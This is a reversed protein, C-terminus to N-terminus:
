LVGKSQLERYYKEEIEVNELLHETSEGISEIRASMPSSAVAEKAPQRKTALFPHELAEAVTIRKNPNFHLMRELLELGEPDAGKYIESLKKQPIAGMSEIQSVTYSDLHGMDDASPTGLVKFIVRLQGNEGGLVDWAEEDSGASLEGCSSGPFLPRRKTSDMISAKEMGFLEAFICGVSWVDVAASYPRGLIVEPARYWRTIVHHTLGRRLSPAMPTSPVVAAEEVLGYHHSDIVSSEVVRALGFDAIKTTCDTCSVLINAPKLDRHIVNASHTYNLGALIQYLIYRIHDTSINQNSKIIKSLDTDMYEFVLYLDGLNNRTPKKSTAQQLPLGFFVSKGGARVGISDDFPSGESLSAANNTIKTLIVDHLGIINPHKLHRLIHMERYARKADTRDDFINLMQKIAYKQRSKIHISETVKGYSGKGLIKKLDYRKTVASSWDDFATDKFITTM